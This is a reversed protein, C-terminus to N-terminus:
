FKFTMISFKSQFKWHMVGIQRRRRLRFKTGTGTKKWYWKTGTKKEYRKDEWAFIM